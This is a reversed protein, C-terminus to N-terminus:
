INEELFIDVVLSVNIDNNAMELAMNKQLQAAVTFANKKNM